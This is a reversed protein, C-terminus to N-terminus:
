VDGGAAAAAAAAAGGDDGDPVAARQEPVGARILLRVMFTPRWWLAELACTNETVAPVFMVIIYQLHEESRRHAKTRHGRMMQRACCAAVHCTAPLVGACRQGAAAAPRADAGSHHIRAGPQRCCQRHDASEAAPTAALLALACFSHQRATSRGCVQWLKCALFQPACAAACCCHSTM